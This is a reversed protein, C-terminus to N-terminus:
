KKRLLYSKYAIYCLVLILWISWCRAILVIFSELTDWGISIAELLKKGLGPTYADINKDNAILVRKTGQRQYISLTVTSYNVQEKLSRNSIAANDSEEEKDSLIAEALTTEPLKRGHVDIAHSMRTATKVARKQTLNNTLIQLSVDDAKITRHDMFDVLGAIMKLTTDLQTNPVRITIDNSISYATTELTSDESVAISSVNDITSAMNTYTVFGGEKATIDEIAYTAATVDNVKFKIDATRIFIHTSDNTKVVAASSSIDTVASSDATAYDTASSQFTQTGCGFLSLTIAIVLLHKKTQMANIKPVTIASRQHLTL